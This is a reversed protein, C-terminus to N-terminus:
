PTKDNPFGSSFGATRLNEEFHHSLAGSAEAGDQSLKDKVEKLTKLKSTRLQEILYVIYGIAGELMYRERKENKM